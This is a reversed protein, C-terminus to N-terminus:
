RGEFPDLGHEEKLQQHAQECLRRAEIM